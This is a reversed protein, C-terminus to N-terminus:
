RRVGKELREAESYLTAAKESFPNERELRAAEARMRIAAVQRWEDDAARRQAPRHLQRHLHPM